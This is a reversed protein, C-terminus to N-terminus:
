RGMLALFRTNVEALAKALEALATPLERSTTQPAERAILSVLIPTLDSAVELGTWIRRPGSQEIRTRADALREWVPRTRHDDAEIASALVTALKDVARGVAEVARDQREYEATGLVAPGYLHEPVSLGRIRPEQWSLCKVAGRATARGWESVQDAIGGTFEKDGIADGGTGTRMIGVEVKAGPFWRTPDRSFFLLAVNRPVEHDNVRRVIDMKRYITRADPEDLLASHCARLHERVLTESLDNVTANLATRSDWPVTASQAHLQTLLGRSQADVTEQDIRM